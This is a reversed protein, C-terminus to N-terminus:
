RRRKFVFFFLIHQSYRKECTSNRFLIAPFWLYLTEALVLNGTEPKDLRWQQDNPFYRLGAVQRAHM